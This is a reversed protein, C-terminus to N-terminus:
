GSIAGYIAVAAGGALLYTNKVGDILQGSPLIGGGGGSAAAETEQNYEEILDQQQKKMEDWEAKTLYNTDDQVQYPGSYYAADHTNGDSDTFSKIEFVETLQVTEYKTSTSSSKFSITDVETTPTELSSSLGVTYSTSSQKTFDTSTLEITEGATTTLTYVTDAYPESTFELTGTNIANTYDNWVGTGTSTDYTIYFDETETSPDIQGLSVSREGTVALAGYITADISPIYVEAERELNTPINLAQLDAQAQSMTEQESSLKSLDSATLLDATDLEGASVKSYVEDIWLIIGDTTNTQQTKIASYINNWDSFQMYKLGSENTLETYPDSISIDTDSYGGSVGWSLPSWTIKNIYGNGNDGKHQVQNLTFADGNPLTINKTVVKQYTYGNTDAGNTWWDFHQQAFVNTHSTNTHADLANIANQYETCTANWSNLLNKIVTTVQENIATTAAAEVDAKAAGTNLSEIAAVKAESYLSQDLNGIINKNDIFTSKNNSKRKTANNYINLELAPASLGDSPDDPSLPSYKSLLWGAAMSGAIGVGIVAPAIAEAEETSEYLGATGVTAAGIGGATARLFNRRSVTDHLSQTHANSEHELETKAQSM